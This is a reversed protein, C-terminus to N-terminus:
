WDARQARGVEAEAEIDSLVARLESVRQADGAALAVALEEELDARRRAREDYSRSV